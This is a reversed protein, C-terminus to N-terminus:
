WPLMFGRVETRVGVVLGISLLFLVIFYLIVFGGSGQMSGSKLDPFHYMYNYNTIPLDIPNVYNFTFKLTGTEFFPLWLQSADGGLFLM